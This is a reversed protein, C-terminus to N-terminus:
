VQVQKDYTSCFKGVQNELSCDVFSTQCIPVQQGNFYNSKQLLTMSDVGSCAKQVKIDVPVPIVLIQSFYGSQLNKLELTKPDQINTRM